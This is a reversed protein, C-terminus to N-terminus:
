FVVRLALWPALNFVMIAIKYRSLYAIFLRPWEKAPVGTIRAELKATWDRAFIIMVAALTYVAVNIVLMWGFVATVEAMTM